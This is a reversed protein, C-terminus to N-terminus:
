IFIKGLSIHPLLAPEQQRLQHLGGRQLNVVQRLESAGFDIM